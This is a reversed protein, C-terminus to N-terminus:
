LIHFLIKYTSVPIARMCFYWCTYLICILAIHSVKKKESLHAWHLSVHAQADDSDKIDAYLFKTDKATWVACIHLLIFHWYASCILYGRYPLSQKKIFWKALHSASVLVYHVYTCIYMCIYICRSVCSIWRKQPRPNWSWTRFTHPELFWFLLKYIFSFLLQRLVALEGAPYMKYQLMKIMLGYLIPWESRSTNTHLDNQWMSIIIWTHCHEM